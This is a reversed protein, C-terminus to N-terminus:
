SILKSPNLENYSEVRNIRESKSVDPILKLDECGKGQLVPSDFLPKKFPLSVWTPPLFGTIVTEQGILLYGFLCFKSMKM